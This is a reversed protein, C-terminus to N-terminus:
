LNEDFDSINASDLINALVRFKSLTENSKARGVLMKQSSLADCWGWHPFDSPAVSGEGFNVNIHTKKSLGDM